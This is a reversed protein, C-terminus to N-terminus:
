IIYEAEEAGAADADDQKVIISHVCQCLFDMGKWNLSAELEVKRDMLHLEEL